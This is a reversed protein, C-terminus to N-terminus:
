GRTIAYQHSPKGSIIVTFQNLLNFLKAEGIVSLGFAAMFYPIVFLGVPECRNWIMGTIYGNAGHMGNQILCSNVNVFKLPYSNFFGSFLFCFKYLDGVGAHPFDHAHYQSLSLPVSNYCSTFSEKMQKSNKQNTSEVVLHTPHLM